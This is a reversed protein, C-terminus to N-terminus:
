FMNLAPSRTNYLFSKEMRAKPFNQYQSTTKIICPMTWSNSMKIWQANTIIIIAPNEILRIFFAPFLEGSNRIIVKNTSINM